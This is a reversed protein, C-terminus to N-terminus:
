RSGKAPSQHAALFADVERLQYRRTPADKFIARAQTALTLAREPESHIVGKARGFVVHARFDPDPEGTELGKELQLYEAQAAKKEGAEWLAEALALRAEPALRHSKDPLASVAARAEVLAEQVHKARLLANSLNIHVGVRQYPGIPRAELIKLARRQLAVAGEFDGQSLLLNGMGSLSLAVRPHQPGDLAESIEIARTLQAKAEDFQGLDRYASSLNNHVAAVARHQPGYAAVRLKLAELFFPVAEAYKRQDKLRDGVNALVMAMAPHEAGELSRTAELAARLTAEAEPYRGLHALANGIGVQAQLALRKDAGALERAKQYRALAEEGRDFVFSAKGFGLEVAAALAPKPPELGAHAAAAFEGAQFAEDKRASETFMKMLLLWAEVRTATARARDAVLVAERLTKEANAYDGKQGLVAGHELLAHALTPVHGAARAATVAEEAKPAAAAYKGAQFHARASAIATQARQFQAADQPAATVAVGECFGRRTLAAAAPGANEVVTADADTLLATLAGLEARRAEFCGMRADLMEDSQEKRIRTAECARTKEVVWRRAFGDLEDRTKKWAAPAYSLGTRAFAREARQQVDSDWISQLAQDAGACVQSRQYFSFAMLGLVGIGVWGAALAMAMPRRSLRRDIADLLQALSPYRKTPDAQLGTDLLRKLWTPADAPLAAELAVCFSFQDSLPTALGGRRQEPAMFAVTGARGPAQRWSSHALGFDTVLVRGDRSLLVNDPKFDRHTLGARHAAALGRGAELFLRAVERWSRPKALYRSLAEGEVLEMVLFAQQGELGADYVARVNPHSLKAMTQAEQLLAARAQPSEVSSARVLKLAVKRDLQPDYAVWVTGMGGVGLLELMLYRGVSSGRAVPLNGTEESDDPAPPLSPALAAVVRRCNRCGDLHDLADDSLGVGSQALQALSAESPCANMSM